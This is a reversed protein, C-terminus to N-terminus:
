KGGEMSSMTSINSNRSSSREPITLASFRIDKKSVASRILIALTSRFFYLVPYDLSSGDSLYFSPIISFSTSSSMLVKSRVPSLSMDGSSNKLIMM